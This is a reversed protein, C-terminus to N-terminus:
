DTLKMTILKFYDIYIRLLKIVPVFENTLSSNIKYDLM